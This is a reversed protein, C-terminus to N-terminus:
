QGAKKRAAAARMAKAKSFKAETQRDGAYHKFEPVQAAKDGSRPMNETMKRTLPEAGRAYLPGIAARAQKQEDPKLEDWDKNFLEQAADNQLKMDIDVKSMAGSRMDGVRSLEGPNPGLNIPGTPPQEGGFYSGPAMSGAHQGAIDAAQGELGRGALMEPLLMASYATLFPHPVGMLAFVSAVGLRSRWNNWKGGSKMQDSIDMLKNNLKLFSDPLGFNENLDRLAAKTQPRMKADHLANWFDYASADRMNMPNPDNKLAKGIPGENSGLKYQRYLRNYNNWESTMGLDGARKTGFQTMDNYTKNLVGWDISGEPVKALLQGIRTRLNVFDQFSMPKGAATTIEEMATKAGPMAAPDRSAMTQTLDNLLQTTQPAYAMPTGHAVDAKNIADLNTIAKARVRAIADSLTKYGGFRWSNEMAAVRPDLGAAEPPVLKGGMYTMLAAVSLTGLGAGVTGPVDGQASRQQLTQTPVGAAGAATEAGAALPSQGQKREGLYTNVIDGMQKAAFVPPNGPGTLVSQLFPKVGTFPQTATRYLNKGAEEFPGAFGTVARKTADVAPSVQPQTPQPAAQAHGADPVFGPPFQQGQPQDPVFGPPFNNPM